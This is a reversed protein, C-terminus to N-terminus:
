DILLDSGERPTHISIMDFAFNQIATSGDSGERPTHISIKVGDKMIRKYYADSGERPTHISIGIWGFREGAQWDSGERPTHISIGPEPQPPAIHFTVGRVPLTSQFVRRVQHPSQQGLTVGRM